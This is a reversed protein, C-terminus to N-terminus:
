TAGPDVRERGALRVCRATISDDCKARLIGDLYEAVAGATVSRALTSVVVVGLEVVVVLLLM